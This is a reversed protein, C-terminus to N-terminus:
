VQSREETAVQFRQRRIRAVCLSLSKRQPKMLRMYSPENLVINRSTVFAEESEEAFKKM